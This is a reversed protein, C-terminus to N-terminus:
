NAPTFVVFRYWCLDHSGFGCWEPGNYIIADGRLSPQLAEVIEKNGISPDTSWVTDHYIGPAAIETLQRYIYNIVGLTFQYSGEYRYGMSKVYSSMSLKEISDGPLKYVVSDDIANSPSPLYVQPSIEIMTQFVGNSHRAMIKISILAQRCIGVCAIGNESRVILSIAPSEFFDSVTINAKSYDISYRYACVLHNKGNNIESLILHTIYQSIICRSSIFEDSEGDEGRRITASQMGLLASDPEAIVEGPGLGKAFDLLRSGDPSEVTLIANKLFSSVEGFASSGGDGIFEVQISEVTSSRLIIWDREAKQKYFESNENRFSIEFGTVVALISFAAAILAHNRKSRTEENVYVSYASFLVGCISIVIAIIEISM